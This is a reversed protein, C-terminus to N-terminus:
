SVSYLYLNIDYDPKKKEDVVFPQDDNGESVFLFFGDIEFENFVWWLEGILKSILAFSVDDYYLTIKAKKDNPTVNNDINDDCGDIEGGNGHLTCLRMLNFFNVNKRM